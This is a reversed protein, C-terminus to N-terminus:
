SETSHSETLREAFARHPATGLGKQLEARGRAMDGRPLAPVALHLGPFIRSHIM